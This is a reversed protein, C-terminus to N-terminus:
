QSSSPSEPESTADSRSRPTTHARFVFRCSRQRPQTDRVEEPQDGTRRGGTDQRVEARLDDLDFREGTHVQDTLAAHPGRGFIQRLVTPVACEVVAVRVLERDREIQVARLRDLDRFLEHRLRVDDGVVEGAVAHVPPPEAELLQPLHLGVDDHQGHRHHPGRSGIQLVARIAISDDGVTADVHPHPEGLPGRGAHPREVRVERRRVDRDARDHRRKVVSLAGALPVEDIERLELCGDAQEASLDQLVRRVPRDGLTDAVARAVPRGM